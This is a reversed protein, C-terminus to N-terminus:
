VDSPVTSPGTPDMSDEVRVFFLQGPIHLFGLRKAMPATGPLDDNNIVAFALNNGTEVLIDRVGGWLRRIVAARGRYEEAIWLPEIHVTSFALWFAKLEGAADELVIVRTSKPDPPGYTAFPEMSRLKDWDEVGLERVKLSSFEAITELASAPAAIETSM